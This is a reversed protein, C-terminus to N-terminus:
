HGNKIKLERINYYDEVQELEGNRRFSVSTEIWGKCWKEHSEFRMDMVDQQKTKEVIRLIRYDKKSIWIQNGDPISGIVWVEQKIWQQSSITSLDYNAEALRAVVEKFPRYYMGGLLLLLTSSDRRSRLLQFNKYNYVSDNQFVVYNGSITDGFSIKFYDPYRITEHWDSYAKISDGKYHTNKQSFSYCCCPGDKYQRHMTKLLKEGSNFQQAQFFAFCTGLFLFLFISRRM